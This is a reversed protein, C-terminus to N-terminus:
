EFPPKGWLFECAVVSPKNPLIGQSRFCASVAAPCAFAPRALRCLIFGLLATELYLAFVAGFSAPVYIPGNSGEWMANLNQQPRAHSFDSARSYLRRAWGEAVRAGKQRFLPLVSQSELHRELPLAVPHRRLHDCACGFGIEQAGARWAEYALRGADVECYVGVAVQELASRLCAAAVQYFGCLTNVVCAQLQDSADLLAGNVIDGPAGPEPIYAAWLDWMSKLEAGHQDSTRLSVDDPFSM